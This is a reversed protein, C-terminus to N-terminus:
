KKLFDPLVMHSEFDAYESVEKWQEADQWRKESAEKALTYADSGILIHPPVQDAESIKLIIQAVKNPDSNEHGWYTELYKITAGITPEYEPLLEITNKFARKGWNTRMGGPELATVKVNFTATEQALGETFGGIAWKSAHYAANGATAMRGGGSSIQIIHGSRQQRMLPLVERTLTVVGFFCTEVLKRFEEAPVQEFPRNDGYGANNVLVDIHGFTDFALKVVEKAQSEDTVDLEAILIQSGYQVSLDDLQKTNRATAVVAHGAQLAAEVINRGLGNGSGTVLWVKKHTEM